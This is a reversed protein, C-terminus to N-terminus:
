LCRGLCVACFKLKIDAFPAEHRGDVRGFEATRGIRLERVELRLWMDRCM